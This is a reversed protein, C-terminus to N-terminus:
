VFAPGVTGGGNIGHLCGAGVLRRVSLERGCRGRCIALRLTARSGIGWRLEIGGNRSSLAHKNWWRSQIGSVGERRENHPAGVLKGMRCRQGNGFRRTLRIIREKKVTSHTEALGVQEMRDSM